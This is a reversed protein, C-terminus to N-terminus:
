TVEKASEDGKLRILVTDIDVETHIPRYGSLWFRPNIKVCILNDDTIDEWVEVVRNGDVKVFLIGYETETEIM